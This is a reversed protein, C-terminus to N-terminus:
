KRTMLTVCEVHETRPFMNVPTAENIGYGSDCLASADRALTFPNCSVYIIREPSLELLARIMAESCGARPPDLIVLDPRGDPTKISADGSYFNINSIGNREANMRADSIASENLDIGYFRLGPYKLALALGWIGTGCFLDACLDFPESGAYEVIKEFLLTMGEYNIQFFSNFSVGLSLGLANNYLRTDGIIPIVSKDTRIGLSYIGPFRDFGASLLRDGISADVSIMASVSGSTSSRVTIECPLAKLSYLADALERAADTLKEPVNLCGEPPLDVISNTRKEYFGIKGSRDVRVTIKNRYRIPTPSLTDKLDGIKVGQKRFAAAVAAKKITSETEYSVTRLTCGGCKGYCPCEPDVRCPSPEKIEVAKATIFNKKEGTKEIRCIDGVVANETFIIKEGTKIVGYGRPTMDVVKYFPSEKDQGLLIVGIFYM